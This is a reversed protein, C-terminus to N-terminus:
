CVGRPDAFYRNAKISAEDKGWLGNGEITIKTTFYVFDDSV